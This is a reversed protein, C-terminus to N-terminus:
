CHRNNELEAIRAQAIALDIQLNHAAVALEDRQKMALAAIAKARLLAAQEENNM